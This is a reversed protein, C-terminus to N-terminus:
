EDINPQQKLLKKFNRIRQVYKRASKTYILASNKDSELKRQRHFRRCLLCEDLEVISDVIASHLSQQITEIM